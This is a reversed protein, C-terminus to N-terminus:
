TAASLHLYTNTNGSSPSATSPIASWGGALDEHAQIIYDKGNTGSMGGRLGPLLGQVTSGSIASATTSCLALWYWRGGTLSQSIAFSKAGNTSVATKTAAVILSTPLFSSDMDYIGMQISGSVVSTVECSLASATFNKPVWVPVYYLRNATLTVGSLTGIGYLTGLNVFRSSQLHGGMAYPPTARQLYNADHAHNGRAVTDASGFDGGTGPYPLADEGSQVMGGLVVLEGSELPVAIVPQGVTPTKFSLRAYLQSANDGAEGIDRLRMQYTPSGYQHVEKIRPSVRSRLGKLTEEMNTFFTHLKQSTGDM